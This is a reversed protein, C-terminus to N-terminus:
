LSEVGDTVTCDQFFKGPEDNRIVDVIPNLGEETSVRVAGFESFLPGAELVDHRADDLTGTDSGSRVDDSCGIEM